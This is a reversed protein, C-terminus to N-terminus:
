CCSADIYVYPPFFLSVSFCQRGRQCGLDSLLLSSGREPLGRKWSALEWGSAIESKWGIVCCLPLPKGMMEWTDCCHKSIKWDQEPGNNLTEQSFDRCRFRQTHNPERHHLYTSESLQWQLENTSNIFMRMCIKEKSKTCISGAATKVWNKQNCRVQFSISHWKRETPILAWTCPLVRHLSNM